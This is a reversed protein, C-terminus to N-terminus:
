GLRLIHHIPRSYVSFYKQGRMSNPKFFVRTFAMFLSALPNIRYEFLVNRGLIRSSFVFCPMKM